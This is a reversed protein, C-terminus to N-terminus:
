VMITFVLTASSRFDRKTFYIFNQIFSIILGLNEIYCTSVFNVVVLSILLQFSFYLYVINSFAM